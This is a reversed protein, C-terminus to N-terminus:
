PTFAWCNVVHRLNARAPRSANTVSSAASKTDISSLSGTADPLLSPGTSIVIPLTETRRSASTDATRIASITVAISRPAHDNRRLSQPNHKSHTRNVEPAPVVRQGTKHLVRKPEIRM